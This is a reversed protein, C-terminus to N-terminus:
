DTMCFIKCITGDLQTDKERLVTKTKKHERVHLFSILCFPIIDQKSWILIMQSYSGSM